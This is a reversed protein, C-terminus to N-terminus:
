NNINVRLDGTKGPLNKSHKPIEAAFDPGRKPGLRSFRNKESPYGQIIEPICMGALM